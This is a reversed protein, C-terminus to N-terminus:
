AMLKRKILSALGALGSGLLLLSSPEPTPASSSGDIQFATEAYGPNIIWSGGGSSQALNTTAGNYTQMWDQVATPDTESAVLWYHGAALDCAVGSCTFTVLGGGIFSDGLILPPITGVQTLTALVSGPSGGNDSEISLHIAANDGQIYSLALIADSIDASSGLTFFNGEVSSGYNSGTVAWGGLSYSGGPGLTTFLTDASAPQSATAAMLSLFLVALSARKVTL